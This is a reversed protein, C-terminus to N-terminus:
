RFRGHLRREGRRHHHQAAVFAPDYGTDFLIPGESPHLILGALAKRNNPGFVM